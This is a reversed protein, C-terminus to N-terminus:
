KSMRALMLFSIRKFRVDLYTGTSHGYLVTYIMTNLTLFSIEFYNSTITTILSFAKEKSDMLYQGRYVLVIPSLKYERRQITM